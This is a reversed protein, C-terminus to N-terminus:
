DSWISVIEDKVKTFLDLNAEKAANTSGKPRGSAKAENLSSRLEQSGPVITHDSPPPKRNNKQQQQKMNNSKKKKKRKMKLMELTLWPNGFAYQQRFSELTKPPRKKGPEIVQGNYDDICAQKIRDAYAVAIKNRFHPGKKSVKQKAQRAAQEKGTKITTSSRPLARRQQAKNSAKVM